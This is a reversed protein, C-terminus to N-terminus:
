VTHFMAEPVVFLVSSSDNPTKTRKKDFSLFLFIIYRVELVTRAGVKEERGRGWGGDTGGIPSDLGMEGKEKEEDSRRGCNGGMGEWHRGGM